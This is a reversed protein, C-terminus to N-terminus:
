EAPHALRRLPRITLRPPAVRADIADTGVLRILNPNSSWDGASPSGDQLPLNM